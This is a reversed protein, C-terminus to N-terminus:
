FIPQLINRCCVKGPQLKTKVISTGECPSDYDTKDLDAASPKNAQATTAVPEAPPPPARSVVPPPSNNGADPAARAVEVVQGSHIPRNELDPTEDVSISRVSISDESTLNTSSVAQSGYGSSSTSPTSTKPAQLEM